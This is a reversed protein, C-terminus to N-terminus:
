ARRRRHVAWLGAAAASALAWAAPEPVGRIAGSGNGIVGPGAAAGAGGAIAGPPTITATYIALDASDVDGDGDADGQAHTAGVLVGLNRQWTLFDSGTVFGDGDFDASPTNFLTPMRWALGYDWGGAGSVALTYTGPGLNTQYIHEVNDVTSVSQDVQSGLFSSTSNYLRLDLNQLSDTPNFPAGPNTDTIKVNWALMISLETATSGAPIQFNYYIDGVGPQSKRDQYDWGFNDVTSTSGPVTSGATRGGVTMLYSNFVNLEGAGFIDDLPRTSTRNWPNAVSTTPEVFAAFEQKTAGAMLIAKTTESRDADTGVAVDRILTAASSIQGTAASTVGAPSVIDPRYRGPGYLSSATGRSHASDTRGVVIANYSHAFLNPHAQTPSPPSSNNNAGVVATVEDRDIVYDYRRLASLDNTTNQLSGVWAHSQVKFPQVAPDGSGAGYQLQDPLWRNADYVTVENAGKALGFFNGYYWRGVTTGAHNSVGFHAFGSGDIFQVAQSFPDGAATFEPSTTDPWYRGTAADGEPAEVQSVAVGHGTPTAAGRAQLLQEFGVAAQWQNPEAGQAGSPTAALSCSAAVLAGLARLRRCLLRCPTDRHSGTV